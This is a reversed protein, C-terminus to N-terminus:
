RRAVLEDTMDLVEQEVAYENMGMARLEKRYKEIKQYDEESLAMTPDQLLQMQRVQDPARVDDEFAEDPIYAFDDAKEHQNNDKASTTSPVNTADQQVSSNNVKSSTTQKATSTTSSLHSNAASVSPTTSTPPPQATNFNNGFTPVIPAAAAAPVPASTPASATVAGSSTTATPSPELSPPPEIMKLSKGAQIVEHNDNVYPTKVVVEEFKGVVFVEDGNKLGEDEVVFSEVNMLRNIGPLDRSIVLPSDDSTSINLKHRIAEILDSVKTETAAVQVRQTGLNTRVRITIM